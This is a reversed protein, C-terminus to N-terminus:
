FFGAFFTVRPLKPMFCAPVNSFGGLSMAFSQYLIVCDEIRHCFVLINKCEKSKQRLDTCAMFVHNCIAIDLSVSAAGGSTFPRRICITCGACARFWSLSHDHALHWALLTPWACCRHNFSPFPHPSALLCASGTSWADSTIPRRICITCGACARSRACSRHKLPFSLDACM